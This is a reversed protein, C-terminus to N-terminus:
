LSSTFCDSRGFGDHIGFCEPPWGCFDCTAVEGREEGRLEAQRFCAAASHRPSRPRRQARDADAPRRTAPLSFRHEM